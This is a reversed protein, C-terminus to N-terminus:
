LLFLTSTLYRAEGFRKRTDKVDKKVRMVESVFGRGKKKVELAMRAVSLDRRLNDSDRLLNGAIRGLVTSSLSPQPMFGHCSQEKLFAVVVRLLSCFILLSLSLPLGVILAPRDFRKGSCNGKSAQEWGRTFPAV